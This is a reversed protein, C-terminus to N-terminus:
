RSGKDLSAIPEGTGRPPELSGSNGDNRVASPIPTLAADLPM